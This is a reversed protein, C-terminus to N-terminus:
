AAQNGQVDDLAGRLAGVVGEDLRRPIAAARLLAGWEPEEAEARAVMRRILTATLAETDESEALLRFLEERRERAEKEGRM